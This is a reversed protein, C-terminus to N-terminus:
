EIGSSPRLQVIIKHAIPNTFDGLAATDSKEGGKEEELLKGRFVNEPKLSSPGM